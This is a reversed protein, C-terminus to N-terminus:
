HTNLIFKTARRQLSAIKTKQKNTQKNKKKDFYHKSLVISRRNVAPIEELKEHAVRDLAPNTQNPHFSKM